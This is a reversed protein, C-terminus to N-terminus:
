DDNTEDTIIAAYSGVARLRDGTHSHEKDDKVEAVTGDPEVLVETIKGLANGATSLLSKGIPDGNWPPASKIEAVPVVDVEGAAADEGDTAGHSGKSSTAGAAPELAEGPVPGPEPPSETPASDVAPADFTIVDGELTKINEMSITTEGAQLSSIRNGAFSVGTITGHREADGLSVVPQGILQSVNIM